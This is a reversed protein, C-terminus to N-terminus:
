IQIVPFLWVDRHSEFTRHRSPRKNAVEEVNRVVIDELVVLFM